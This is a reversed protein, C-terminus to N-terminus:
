FCFIVHGFILFFFFFGLDSDLDLFVFGFCLVCVWFVFSLFVSGVLVCFM